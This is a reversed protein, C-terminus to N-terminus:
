SGGELQPVQVTNLAVSALGQSIEWLYVAAPTLGVVGDPTAADRPALGGGLKGFPRRASALIVTKPM